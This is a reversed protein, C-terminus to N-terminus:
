VNMISLLATIVRFVPVCYSRVVGTRLGNYVSCVRGCEGVSNIPLTCNWNETCSVIFNVYEKLFIALSKAFLPSGSWVGCEAADSWPRHQKGTVRKRTERNCHTLISCAWEVVQQYFPLCHLGQDSAQRIRIVMNVRLMLVGIRSVM